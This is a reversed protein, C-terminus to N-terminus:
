RVRELRPNPRFVRGVKGSPRGETLVVDATFEYKGQILASGVGYMDVPANVERFARIKEATFGGSAVIRVEQFGAHDLAERTNFVLQPNVGTPRFSGMYDLVSRDVLTESTDLRVGWLRPGLARAVEVATRPSDNEFDVLCIIPMSEPVHRAFALAAAVTDGDFAAILAHPITGLGPGGWWEGEADVSVGQVGAIWAAYGDGQAMAWHDHRAPFYLVPVPGAAEVVERTSTAIRTRRSLIGLYITELHAFAGYPGNIHMVSEWPEIRDGDHLAYVELDDFTFGETLCTKLVAIAEDIGALVASKKQFVQMTVHPRPREALVVTRAHVFYKDTYYGARIQEVPLEVRSPDLREEIRRLPPVTGNDATTSESM